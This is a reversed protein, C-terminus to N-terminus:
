TPRVSFCAWLPFHDSIRWSLQTNSLGGQLAPRFDFNGGLDAYSLPPKFTSKGAADVFWAVQDYFHEEEPKQYITRPLTAHAPAPRLGTAVFAQYLEDNARDINFDGLTMLNDGFEDGGNAWDALWRAIERIEPLRAAANKGWLV